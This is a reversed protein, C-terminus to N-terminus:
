LMKGNSGFLTSSQNSVNVNFLLFLLSGKGRGMSSSTYNHDKESLTSCVKPIFYGRFETDKIVAHPVNIPLFDIFRQIEHVVADTYPMRSRDAMSPSRDRGIVSDIEKQAKEILFCIFLHQISLNEMQEGSGRGM